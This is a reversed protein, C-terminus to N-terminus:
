RTKGSAIWNRWGTPRTYQVSSTFIVLAGWVPLGVTKRDAERELSKKSRERVGM